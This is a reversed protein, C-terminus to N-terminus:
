KVYEQLVQAVEESISGTSGLMYIVDIQSKNQDLYTKVSTELRTTPTLFIPSISPTQAAALPGGSLADPYDSGKAFVLHRMDMGMLKALNVGVVYRNAGDVRKVTKGLAALQDAVGKSVSSAGGVIVFTSIEPHNKIFYMIETPIRNATVLLTPILADNTTSSASLADSFVLGNAVIATDIAEDGLAGYLMEGTNAAVAFRNSGGLREIHQVGLSILQQEVSSNVTDEGGMIIAQTPQRRSIEERISNPLSAPLTLLIPAQFLGAISGGSLADAFKGSGGSSIVITDSPPLEKSVNASVEFRDKGGLRKITPVVPDFHLYTANGSEHVSQIDVYNNGPKLPLNVTFSADLKQHFDENSILETISDTTGEILLNKTGQPLRQIPLSPKTITLKPTQLSPQSIYTLGKIQYEYTQLKADDVFVFFSYRGSPLADGDQYYAISGSEDYGALLYDIKTSAHNAIIQVTSKEAIEFVYEDVKYNSAQGSYLIPAQQTFAKKSNAHQKKNENVSSKHKINLIRHVLKQKDGDELAATKQVLPKAFSSSSMLPSVAVLIAIFITLLKQM